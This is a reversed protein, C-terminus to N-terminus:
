QDRSALSRLWQWPSAPKGDRYALAAPVRLEVETGTGPRSWIELHAGIKHARNRMCSLGSHSSRPGAQLLATDVGSGNDRFSIRLENRDFNIETECRAANAHHFSNTLAERGIRYAADRVATQLARAKGNVVVSFDARHELKLETCVAAFAEPLGNVESRAGVGLIRERLEELVDDSESLAEELM